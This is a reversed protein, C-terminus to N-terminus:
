RIRDHRTEGKSVGGSSPTMGVEYAQTRHGRTLIAALAPTSGTVRSWDTAAELQEALARAAPLTRLEATIIGLGTRAHYLHWGDRPSRSAVFHATLLRGFHQRTGGSALASLFRM